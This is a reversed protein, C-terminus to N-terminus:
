NRVPEITVKFKMREGTPPVEVTLAEPDFATWNKGGAAVESIRISGQPLLDPAVRLVNGPLHGPYPM